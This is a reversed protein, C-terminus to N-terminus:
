ALCYNMPFTTARVCVRFTVCARVRSIDPIYKDFCLICVCDSYTIIGRMRTKTLHFGFRRHCLRVFCTWRLCHQLPVGSNEPSINIGVAVLVLRGQLRFVVVSSGNRIIRLPLYPLSDGFGKFLNDKYALRYLHKLSPSLRHGSTRVNKATTNRCSTNFKGYRSNRRNRIAFKCRICM